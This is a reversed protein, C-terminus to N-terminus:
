KKAETVENYPRIRNLAVTNLFLDGEELGIRPEYSYADITNTNLNIRIVNENFSKQDPIYTTAKRMKIMNMGRKSLPLLAYIKGDEFYIEMVDSNVKATSNTEANNVHFCTVEKFPFIIQSLEADRPTYTTTAPKFECGEPTSSTTNSLVVLGKDGQFFTLHVGESLEGMSGTFDFMHLMNVEELLAKM